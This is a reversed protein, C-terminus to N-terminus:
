LQTVFLIRYKTEYIQVRKFLLSKKVTIPFNSKLGFNTQKPLLNNRSFGHGNSSVLYYILGAAGTSKYFLCFILIFM